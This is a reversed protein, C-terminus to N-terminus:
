LHNNRELWRLAFYGWIPPIYFTALRYLLVAAFAAEETLGAGVLGVALGGEVVGIGGPVPMVGALLSVSINIFLIEALGVPYGFGRVILLLAFAFLLETALNGGFLLALRRPSHLGRAAHLAEGALKRIWDIIARRWKARVALTIGAAMVIALVVVLLLILKDPIAAGFDLELTASTLTLLGILLIVQLCFQALGDLGEVALATGAPMGHRQHFRVGVATRAGPAPVAFGIYGMALKLAYVPGLALPQPSAGILSIANTLRTGQAVLAGAVILWWTAQSLQDGLLDFDLGGIGAALAFFAAILLVTRLLSGLTVRRMRELEPAPLEAHEAVHKRLADLDLRSTRVKSRQQATLAPLQVYPLMATLENRSLATVAAVAAPEVGVALATTVLLQARDSRLREPRPAISGGRFDAFGLTDGDLILRADDIQGHSIGNDHLQRLTRWSEAVLTTSWRDTARAIPCGSRRLVLLVDNENTASATVVRDTHIGAQAALLTLFAEHEAQALRGFSTPTGAGRYWAWRWMTTVLQTDYADRGYVKVVLPNGDDDIADVLFVGATQREAIRLSHAAIRLGGLGTAVDALSPRGMSSGFALRVAAAGAGAAALASAAGTVATTLHLISGLFALSILLHALRRAPRRLEPSVGLLAGASLALAL